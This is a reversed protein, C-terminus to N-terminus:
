VGPPAGFPYRGGGRDITKGRGGCVRTRAQARVCVRALAHLRFVEWARAQGSESARPSDFGIVTFFGLRVPMLFRLVAAANV